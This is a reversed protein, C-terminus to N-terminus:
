EAPAQYYVTAGKRVGLQLAAQHTGVCVDIRSGKIAGGTDDARYEHLGAGDNYDIWVTSGLPITRRDVAVTYGPVAARGSATIGDTKGCCKVCYADYHTIKVNDIRVADEPIAPAEIVAQVAEAEPITAANGAGGLTQAIILASVGMCAALAYIPKIKRKRQM